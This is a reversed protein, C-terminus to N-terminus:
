FFSIGCPFFKFSNPIKTAFDLPQCFHFELSVVSVMTAVPATMMLLVSPVMPVTVAVVVPLKIKKFLETNNM